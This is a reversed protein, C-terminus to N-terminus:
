KKKTTVTGCEPSIPKYNYILDSMYNCERSVNGSNNGETSQRQQNPSMFPMRGTFTPHQYTPKTITVIRNNWNDDAGGDDKAGIFGRIYGIQYRKGPNDQFIATFILTM